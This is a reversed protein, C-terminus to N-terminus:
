GKGSRPGGPYRPRRPLPQPVGLGPEGIFEDNREVDHRILERVYESASAYGALTVRRRVFWKLEEPLSITLITRPMRANEKNRRDVKHRPQKM